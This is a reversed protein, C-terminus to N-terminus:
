NYENELKVFEKLYSIDNQTLKLNLCEKATYFYCEKIEGDFTNNKIYKEFEKSTFNLNGTYLVGVPYYKENDIPIKLYKMCYNLVQSKDRLNIGIEELVEREICSDPAFNDNKFDAFDALGGILNIKNHNNKIIIYKYDKTKLLISAFLPRITLNESNQSYILSSFKTKGIELINNDLDIDTVIVIEGDWYSKRDKIFKDWCDNIKRRTSDIVELELPEKKNLKLIEKLKILM